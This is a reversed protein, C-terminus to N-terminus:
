FRHWDSGVEDGDEVIIPRGVVVSNFIGQGGPPRGPNIPRRGHNDGLIGPPPRALMSRRGPSDHFTGRSITRREATMPRRGHIDDDGDEVIIPRGVVVSNFIGRAAPSNMQRRGSIEGSIRRGTDIGPKRYGLGASQADSSPALGIAGFVFIVIALKM